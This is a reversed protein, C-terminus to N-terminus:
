LWDAGKEQLFIKIKKHDMEKFAKKMENNTGVFNTGNDSWISRVAGRRAM